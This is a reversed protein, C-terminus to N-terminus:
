YQTGSCAQNIDVSTDLYICRARAKTNSKAPLLLQARAKSRLFPCIRCFTRLFVSAQRLCTGRTSNVCRRM